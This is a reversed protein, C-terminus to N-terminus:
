MYQMLTRVHIRVHVYSDVHVCVPLRSSLPRTGGTFWISMQMSCVCATTIRSSGMAELFQPYMLGQVYAIGGTLAQMCFSALVVIWGFGGDPPVPRADDPVQEADNDVDSLSTVFDSDDDSDDSNVPLSTPQQLADKKSGYTHRRRRRAPLMPSDDFSVISGTHSPPARLLHAPLATTRKAYATTPRKGGLAPASNLLQAGDFDNILLRPPLPRKLEGNSHIM